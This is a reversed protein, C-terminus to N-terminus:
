LLTAAAEDSETELCSKFLRQHHPQQRPHGQHISAGDELLAARRGHRRDSKTSGESLDGWVSEITESM